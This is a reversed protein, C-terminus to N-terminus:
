EAAVEWIANMEQLKGQLTEPARGLDLAAMETQRAVTSRSMVPDINLDALTDCVQEMEAARRAGHTLMRELSYNARERWNSGLSALVEEAVGARHAALMSEMTLAEIGKVIVSRVMKITSARGIQEGVIKVDTFGATRLLAEAGAAAKGSLLLPVDLQKPYVPAMIAVDVYAGGAASVLSGARQKTSPSVSNMDLYLTDAAIHEIVSGAAFLAQDATVTSILAGANQALDRATTYFRVDHKTYAQHLDAREAPAHEKVDFAAATTQWGPAGVFARAAEGFGIFSIDCSM